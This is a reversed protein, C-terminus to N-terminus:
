EMLGRLGGFYLALYRGLHPMRSILPEPSVNVQSLAPSFDHILCNCVFFNCHVQPWAEIHLPVKHRSPPTLNKSELFSAKNAVIPADGGVVIFPTVCQIISKFYFPTFSM